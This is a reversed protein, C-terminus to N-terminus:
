KSVEYEVDHNGLEEENSQCNGVNLGTEALLIDRDRGDGSNLTTISTGSGGNSTSGDGVKETSGVGTSLYTIRSDVTNIFDM